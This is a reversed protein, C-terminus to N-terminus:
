CINVINLSQPLPIQIYYKQWLSNTKKNKTFISYMNLVLVPDFQYSFIVNKM